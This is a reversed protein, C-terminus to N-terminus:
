NRFTSWTTNIRKINSEDSDIRIFIHNTKEEVYRTKEIHKENHLIDCEVGLSKLNEYVNLAMGGNRKEKDKVFVPVPAEPALRKCHGYVYVDECADGVVLVRM